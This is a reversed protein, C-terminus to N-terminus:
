RVSQSAPSSLLTRYVASVAKVSHRAVVDARARGGLESALERDALVSDLHQALASVDGVTFLLGNQGHRVLTSIEGVDTVIPPLGSAMADLMSIPLGEWRSPLVFATAGAYVDEIATVQGLFVVRDDVGLRRAQTQLPRLLPGSGAIGVRISPHHDRLVSIADILDSFRKTDTLSGVAVVDFRSTPQTRPRFRDVDTSPPIVVVRTPSLGRVLLRERTRPGMTAVLTTRAIQRLLLRELPPLPVPLRGLVRNDSAYGGGCWEREGGIMHYLSRIGARTGVFQANFGHPVFHFGMVWDFSQERALRLCVALKALGRGLTKKAYKSPVVTEVKPLPPSEEDAVLTISEVEDLATLPMLHARLQNQNFTVTVLLRLKREITSRSEVGVETGPLM